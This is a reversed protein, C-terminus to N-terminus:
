FSFESFEIRRRKYGPFCANGHTKGGARPMKGKKAARFNPRACCQRLPSPSPLRSFSVSKREERGRGRARVKKREGWNERTWFAFLAEFRRFTRRFRKSRLSSRNCSFYKLLQQFFWLLYWWNFCLSVYKFLSFTWMLYHSENCRCFSIGLFCSFSGPGPNSGPNSRGCRLTRVVLRDRSHAVSTAAPPKM